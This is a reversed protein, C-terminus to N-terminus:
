ALGRCATPSVSLLGVLCLAHGTRGQWSAMFVACHWYGDDCSETSHSELRRTEDVLFSQFVFCHKEATM